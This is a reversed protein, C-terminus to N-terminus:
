AAEAAAKGAAREKRAKDRAAAREKRAKDRAAREKRAKDRAAIRENREKKRQAARERDLKLCPPCLDHRKTSTEGKTGANIGRGWGKTALYDRHDGARVQGTTSKTGCRNCEITSGCSRRAIRASMELM